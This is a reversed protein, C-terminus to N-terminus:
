YNKNEIRNYSEVRRKLSIASESSRLSQEVNKDFQKDSENPEIGTYEADCVYCVLSPFFFNEVLAPQVYFEENGCFLCRGFRIQEVSDALVFGCDNCILPPISPEVFYDNTSFCVPCDISAKVAKIKRKNQM